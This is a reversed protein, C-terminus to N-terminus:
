IVHSVHCLFIRVTDSTIRMLGDERVKHCPLIKGDAESDGFGPLGPFTNRGSSSLPSPDIRSHPRTRNGLRGVNERRAAQARHAPSNTDVEFDSSHEDDDDDDLGASMPSPRSMVASFARRTPPASILPKPVPISIAGTASVSRGVPAPLLAALAPRRPLSRKPLPQLTTQQQPLPPPQQQQGRSKLVSGQAALTVAREFTRSKARKHSPSSPPSSSLPGEFLASPRAHHTEDEDPDPSRRKKSGVGHSSPCLALPSADVDPSSPQFFLASLDATAFAAAPPSSVSPSSLLGPRPSPM